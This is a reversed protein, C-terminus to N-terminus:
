NRLQHEQQSCRLRRSRVRHRYLHALRGRQDSRGDVLGCQQGQLGAATARAHILAAKRLTNTRQTVPDVREADTIASEVEEMTAERAFGSGIALKSWTVNVFWTSGALYLTDGDGMNRLMKVAVMNRAEIEANMKENLAKSYWYAGIADDPREWGDMADAFAENTIDEIGTMAGRDWVRKHWGHVMPHTSCLARGIKWNLEKTHQLSEGIAKRVEPLTSEIDTIVSLRHM